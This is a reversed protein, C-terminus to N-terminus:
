VLSVNQSILETRGRGRGDLQLRGHAAGQHGELNYMAPLCGMKSLFFPSITLPEHSITVM